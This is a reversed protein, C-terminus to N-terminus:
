EKGLIVIVIKVYAIWTSSNKNNFLAFASFISYLYIGTLSVIILVNDFGLFFIFNYIYINM